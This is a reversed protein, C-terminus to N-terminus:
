AQPNGTRRCFRFGRYKPLIYGAYWLSTLLHKFRQEWFWDKGEIFNTAVFVTIPVELEAAIPYAYDFTDIWGDDFTVVCVNEPLPDDNSLMELLQSLSVLRYHRKLFKLQQRFSAATVVIDPRAYDKPM